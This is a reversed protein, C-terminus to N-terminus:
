LIKNYLNIQRFIIHKHSKQYNLFLNITDSLNELLQYVYFFNVLNLSM